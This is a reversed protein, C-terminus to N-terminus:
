RTSADGQDAQHLACAHFLFPLGGGVSDRVRASCHSRSLFPACIRRIM